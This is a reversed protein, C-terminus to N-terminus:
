REGTRACSNCLLGASGKEAEGREALGSDAAVPRAACRHGAGARAMMESGGGFPQEADGPQGLPRSRLRCGGGGRRLPLRHGVPYPYQCAADSPRPGAGAGSGAWIGCRRSGASRRSAPSPFPPRAPGRRTVADGASAAGVWGAGVQSARAAPGPAPPPGPRECAM